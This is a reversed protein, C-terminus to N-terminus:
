HKLKNIEAEFPSTIFIRIHKGQYIHALKGTTFFFTLRPTVMDETKSLIALNNELTIKVLIEEVAIYSFEWQPLVLPADDLKKVKAM